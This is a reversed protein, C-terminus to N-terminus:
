RKLEAIANQAITQLNDPNKQFNLAAKKLIFYEIEYNAYYFKHFNLLFWGPDELLLKEAIRPGIYPLIINVRDNVRDIYEKIIPLVLDTKFELHIGLKRMAKKCFFEVLLSNHNNNFNLFMPETLRSSSSNLFKGNDFHKIDSNYHLNRIDESSIEKELLRFYLRIEDLEEENLSEKKESLSIPMIDITSDYFYPQSYCGLVPSKIIHKGVIEELYIRKNKDDFCLRPYDAPNVEVEEGSLTTYINKGDQSQIIGVSTQAEMNLGAEHSSAACTGHSFFTSCITPILTTCNVEGQTSRTSTQAGRDPDEEHSSSAAYSRHSLLM